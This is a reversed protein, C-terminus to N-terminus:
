WGLGLFGSDEQSQRSRVRRSAPIAHGVEESHSHNLFSRIARPLYSGPNPARIGYRELVYNSNKNDFQQRENLYALFYPLGRLARRLRQGAMLRALYVGSRLAIRPFHRVRPLDLHFERYIQQSLQALDLLRPAMAGSCLHFLHHHERASVNSFYIARAVYDVPVIDLRANGFQPLIGWTHRGTLLECLRYFVQFRMVRGTSSHGVVMSPRHITATLGKDIEQWLHAEAEAKAAEYTNHFQITDREFRREEILGTKCGAVGITSVYDFKQFRGRARCDNVLHLVTQLGGVASRRASQLDQNLRVDGAAHVVHTVKGALEQYSREEWGFQALGVDGRRAHLRNLIRPDNPSIRWFDSLERVRYQLHSESNARVLAHVHTHEDELYLRALEAGIVGTIGTIFVHRMLAPM